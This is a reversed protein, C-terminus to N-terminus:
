NFRKRKSIDKLHSSQLKGEVFFNAMSIKKLFILFFLLVFFPYAVPSQTSHPSPPFYSCLLLPGHHEPLPYTNIKCNFCAYYM